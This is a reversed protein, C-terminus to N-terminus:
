FTIEGQPSPELCPPNEALTLLHDIEEQPAPHLCPTNEELTLLHDRRTSRPGLM